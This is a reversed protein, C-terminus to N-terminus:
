VDVDSSASPRLTRPADEQCTAPRAARCLHILDYVAPRLRESGVDIAVLSQVHEAEDTIADFGYSGADARLERALRHVEGLRDSEFAVSLARAKQPLRAVFEDIMPAFAPDGAFRSVVPEARLSEILEGLAEPTIPKRLYGTCGAATCRQRLLPGTQVALGVLAGYYGARRLARIVAFANDDQDELDLLVLDFDHQKVTAHLAVARDQIHLEVNLNQVFRAMLRRVTSSRDVLLVRILQAERTYLTIDIPHDFRLGAEYLAGSGTLYRCHMVQAPVDFTAGHLTRLKIVGATRPYVFQGVLCGAGLRSLNRPAVDFTDTRTEDDTERTLALTLPDSRYQYRRAARQELRRPPVVKRDLRDLYSVLTAPPVRLPQPKPAAM